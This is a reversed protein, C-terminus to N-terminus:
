VTGGSLGNTTPLRVCPVVIQIRAHPVPIQHSSGAAGTRIIPVGRPSQRKHHSCKQLSRRCRSPVIYQPPGRHEGASEGVSAYFVCSCSTTLARQSDILTHKGLHWKKTEHRTNVYVSFTQKILRDELGVQSAGPSSTFKILSRCRIGETTM